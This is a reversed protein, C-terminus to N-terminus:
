DPPGYLAEARVGLRHEDFEILEIVSRRATASRYQIALSNVGVMVSLLEFRLNPTAALGRAWYSRIADKGKLRGGPVNLWDVILPSMMEFDDKYHSLVRDLDHANWAEVWERAFAEGWGRDIM